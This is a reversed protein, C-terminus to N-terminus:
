AVWQLVVHEIAAAAPTGEGSGTNQDWVSTLWDAAIASPLGGGIVWGFFRGSPMATLGADVTRALEDIVERPDTGADPLPRDLAALMAAADARPSVPREPLGDLFETAIRATHEFLPKWETRRM